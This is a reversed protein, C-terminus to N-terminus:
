CYNAQEESAFLFFCLDHCDQGGFGLFARYFDWTYFTLHAVLIIHCTEDYWIVYFRLWRESVLWELIDFKDPKINTNAFRTDFHPKNPNYNITTSNPNSTPKFIQLVINAQDKSSRQELSGIRSHECSVSWERELLCSNMYPTFPRVKLWIAIIPIKISFLIWNRM